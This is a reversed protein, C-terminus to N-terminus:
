IRARRPVQWGRSKHAGTKEDQYTVIDRYRPDFQLDMVRAFTEAGAKTVPRTAVNEIETGDSAVVRRGDNLSKLYQAGNMLHPEAGESLAEVVKDVYPPLNVVRNNM